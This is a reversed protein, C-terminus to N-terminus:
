EGLEDEISTPPKVTPNESKEPSVAAVAKELQAAFNDQPKGPQGSLKVECWLYGDEQRTFVEKLVRHMDEDFLLSNPLGVQLTGSLENSKAMVEGLIIFHGKKEMRLGQIKTESMTRVLEGELRDPFVYQRAYEPNQLERSLEGLFPLNRITLADRESGRFGIQLKLSSLDGPTVSFLRNIATTPTDVHGNFIIDLENGLLLEIPFEELMVQIQSKEPSYLQISNEMELIGNGSLPRLRLNECRMQGLEFYISGRDLRMPQFGNLKFMGGVFRTQTGRTTKVLSAETGEITFWPQHDAKQGIIDLKECRYSSFAFPFVGDTPLEGVRKPSDADADSFILKGSKSVVSTGGWKKGLFSSIDLHASPHAVQLQRLYNGAPWTFNAGDCKANNPSVTFSVLEVEAGSWAAIKERTAERFASSNYYFLMGTALALVGAILFFVLGLQLIRLRQTRKAQEKHPQKSRRKRKKVKIATTGDARTVLEGEDHGREKLRQMMEDLSYNEPEQPSDPETPM